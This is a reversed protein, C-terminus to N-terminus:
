ISLSKSLVRHYIVARDAHMDCLYQTIISGNSFQKKQIRVAPVLKKLNNRCFVCVYNTDFHDNTKSDSILKIDHKGM